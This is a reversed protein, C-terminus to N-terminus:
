AHRFELATNTPQKPANIRSRARSKRPTTLDRAVTGIDRPRRQRRSCVAGGGGTTRLGSFFEYIGQHSM